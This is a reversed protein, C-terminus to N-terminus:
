EIGLPKGKRLNDFVDHLDIIFGLILGMTFLLGTVGLLKMSLFLIITMTFLRIFDDIAFLLKFIGTGRRFILSAFGIM